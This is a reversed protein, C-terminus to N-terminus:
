SYEKAAVLNVFDVLKHSLEHMARQRKRLEIPQNEYQLLTSAYLRLFEADQMTQKIRKKTLKIAM